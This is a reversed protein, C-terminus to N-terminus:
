QFANSAAERVLREFLPTAKDQAEQMFPRPKTGPHFVRKAFRVEGHQVFRLVKKRRPLIEHPRTGNEVWSAYRANASVQAKGPSVRTRISNRLNYTHSKYLRSLKAYTAATTATRQLAQQTQSQLKAATEKCWNVLGSGDIKGIV